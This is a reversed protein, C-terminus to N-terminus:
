PRPGLERAPAKPKQALAGSQACGKGVGSKAYALNNFMEQVYYNQGDLVQNYETGRPNPASISGLAGAYNNDCM